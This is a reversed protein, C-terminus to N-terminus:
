SLQWHSLRICLALIGMSRISFAKIWTLLAKEMWDATVQSANGAHCDNIEQQNLKQSSIVDSAHM